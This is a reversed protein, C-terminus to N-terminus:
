MGPAKGLPQNIPAPHTMDGDAPIDNGLNSPDWDTREGISGEGESTGPTGNLGSEPTVTDVHKLDERDTPDTVHTNEDM